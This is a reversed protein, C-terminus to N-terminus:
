ACHKYVPEYCVSYCLSLMPCVILDCRRSRQRCTWCEVVAAEVSMLAILWCICCELLFGHWSVTRSSLAAQVFLYPLEERDLFMFLCVSLCVSVFLCKFCVCLALSTTVFSAAYSRNSSFFYVCYVLLEATAFFPRAISRTQWYNAEITCFTSHLRKNNTVYIVSKDSCEILPQKTTKPM